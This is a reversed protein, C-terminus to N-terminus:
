WRRGTVYADFTEFVQKYPKLRGDFASKWNNTTQGDSGTGYSVSYSGISESSVGEKGSNGTVWTDIDSVVSLFDSPVGCGYLTVFDSSNEATLTADLTLKSTAVGTVKYVGDNMYSGVVHVYQGVFYTNEFTGTIGDAVFALDSRERTKWFHNNCANMVQALM